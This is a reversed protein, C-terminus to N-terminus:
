ATLCDCQSELCGTRDHLRKIDLSPFDNSELRGTRDHLIHWIAFIFVFNELRGTRDHLQIPLYHLLLM